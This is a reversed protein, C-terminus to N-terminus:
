KVILKKTIKTKDTSLKVLYVGAPIQTGDQGKLDWIFQAGGAQMTENLLTKVKRGQFDYVELSVFGPSGITIDFFINRDAPNPYMTLEAGSPLSAPKTNMGSKFSIIFAEQEEGTRIVRKEYTQKINNKVYYEDMKQDSMKSSGFHQEFVVSDGPLGNLYASLVVVSDSPLVSCAGVCSDNVFAGIETPKTGTTDLEIVYTEYDALKDHVYYQVEPRIQGSPPNGSWNWTFNLIDEFPSLKIMEGYKIVPKGNCVWTGPPYDSVSKTGNGCENNIPVNYRWCNYNEHQIHYVKDKIGALADFVNQEEPIFYGIWNEKKCYLEMVTAPDEVTGEMLLIRDDKPEAVVVYGRTSSINKMISNEGLLYQWGTPQTWRAYDINEYGAPDIIKIDNYDLKLYNYSPSVNNQHFVTPTPTTGNTRDLRPVSIWNFGGHLTLTSKNSANIVKINGNELVDEFMVNKIFSNTDIKKARIETLRNQPSKDPFSVATTSLDSETQGRCVGILLTFAAFLQIVQKSGKM